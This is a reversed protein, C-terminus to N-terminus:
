QREFEVTNDNETIKLTDDKVKASVDFEAYENIIHITSGDFTYTFKM